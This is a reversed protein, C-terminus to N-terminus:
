FTPGKRLMIMPTSYIKVFKCNSNCKAYSVKIACFFKIKKGAIPAGVFNAVGKMLSLLGVASTFRNLGVADVLFVTTLPM